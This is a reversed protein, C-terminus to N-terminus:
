SMYVISHAMEGDIDENKHWYSEDNLVQWRREEKIYSWDKDNQYYLQIGKAELINLIQNDHYNFEDFDTFAKNGMESYYNNLNLLLDHVALDLEKANLGISKAEKLVIPYSHSPFDNNLQQSIRECEEEDKLHYSLIEKCIKISLSSSRDLSGLVLPHIYKYLEQYHHVESGESNQKWLKSIRTLEDHSIRVKRNNVTDVPALQHVTSSDIPTLYALPGMHIEDAGLVILTASSASELPVLATVNSNYNRIINVMRLAAETNGGSSKIFLAVKEHKGIKKFIEYLALVDNQCVGGNYSNWYVVLPMGLIKELRDISAQTEKFLVPPQKIEPKTNQNESVINETTTDMKNQNESM